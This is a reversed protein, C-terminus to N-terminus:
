EGCDDPFDLSYAPSVVGNSAEDDDALTQVEAKAQQFQEEFAGSRKDVYYVAAAALAGSIILDWASETLWNTDTDQTLESFTSWYDLRVVMGDTPEPGFVYNQGRRSYIQPPDVTNVVRLRLVDNLGALRLTRATTDDSYSIDKLELLDAPIPLGEAGYAASDWTIEVSKEMPPIRLERQARLIAQQVFTDVLAPNATLDRRNFLGTFQTKVEGYNM